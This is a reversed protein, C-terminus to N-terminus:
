ILLCVLEDSQRIVIVIVVDKFRVRPNTATEDVSEATTTM